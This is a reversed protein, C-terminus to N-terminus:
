HHEDLPTSLAVKHINLWPLTWVARLRKVTLRPPNTSKCMGNVGLWSACGFVVVLGFLVPDTPAHHHNQIQERSSQRV